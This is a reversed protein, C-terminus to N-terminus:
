AEEGPLVVGMDDAIKRLEPPAELRAERRRRREQEMPSVTEGCEQTKFGLGSKGGMTKLTERWTVHGNAHRARKRDRRPNTRNRKM